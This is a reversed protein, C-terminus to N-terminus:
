KPAAREVKADISKQLADLARAAERAAAEQSSMQDRMSSMRSERRDLEDRLRMLEENLAQMRVEAQILQPPAVMPRDVMRAIAKAALTQHEPGSVIVSSDNVTIDLSTAEGPSGPFAERMAEALRTVTVSVPNFQVLVVRVPQVSRLRLLDSGLNEIVKEAAQLQDGTGVIMLLGSDPHFRIEASTGRQKVPVMNVATEIAGLVAEKPLYLATGADPLWEPACVANLSLVRTLTQNPDWNPQQPMTSRISYVPTSLAEGGNSHEIIAVSDLGGEGVLSEVAEIATRLSANTLQIAPIEAEGLTGSLVINANGDGAAARLADVYQALTGGAFRVNIRVERADQAAREAMAAQRMARQQQIVVAESATSGSEKQGCATGGSAALVSLLVLGSLGARRCLIPMM